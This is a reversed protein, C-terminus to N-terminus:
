IRGAPTSPWMVHVLLADSGPIDRTQGDGASASPGCRSPSSGFGIICPCSFDSEAITATFGVFLASAIRQPAPPALPPSWPSHSGAFCAGSASGSLRTVPAPASVSLAGGDSVRPLLRIRSLQLYPDPAALSAAMGAPSLGASLPTWDSNYDYGAVPLAVSGNFAQFDFGGPAPHELRIRVPPALFRVPRLLHTFWSARFYTGRTFRIAPLDPTGLQESRPSPWTPM